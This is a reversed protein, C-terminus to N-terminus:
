GLKDILHRDKLLLLYRLKRSSLAPRQKRNIFGAFSFLAESAVSTAPIINTQRVLRALRPLLKEHSMWFEQFSSASQRAELYASLEEDLTMSRQTVISASVFATYGCLIALKDLPNSTSTATTQPTSSPIIISISASNKLKKFILKKATRRDDDSLSKYTM